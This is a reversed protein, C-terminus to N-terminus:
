PQVPGHKLIIPVILDEEDTLHRDLFTDFDSLHQDVPALAERQDAGPAALAAILTELTGLHRDLAHHDADLLAFGHTLRPEIDTFLPFYHTDEMHHHGHLAETFFRGIRTLRSAIEAPDERRDLGARAQGQMLTLARRFELHRSLWFRTLGDFNHHSQWIDRPYDALLIRLADPLRARNELAESMSM